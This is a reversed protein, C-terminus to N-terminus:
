GANEMSLFFGSIMTMTRLERSNFIHVETGKFASTVLFLLHKEIANQQCEPFMVRGLMYKLILLFQTKRDEKCLACALCIESKQGPQSHCGKELLQVKQKLNFIPHSPRFHSNPSFRSHKSLFFFFFAKQVNGVAKCAKLESKCIFLAKQIM